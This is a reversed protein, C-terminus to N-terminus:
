SQPNLTKKEERKLPQRVAFDTDGSKVICLYLLVGLHGLIGLHKSRTQFPNPFHPKEQVLIPFTKSLYQFPSPHIANRPPAM